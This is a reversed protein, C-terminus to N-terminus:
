FRRPRGPSAKQATAYRGPQIGRIGGKVKGVHGFSGADLGGGHAGERGDVPKEGEGVLLGEEVGGADDDVELFRGSNVEGGVAFEVAVVEIMGVGVPHDLVEDLPDAANLGPDRPLVAVFEHGLLAHLETALGGADDGAGKVLTGEVEGFGAGTRGGDGGLRDLKGEGAGVHEGAGEEVLMVAVKFGKEEGEGVDKGSLDGIEVASADLDVFGVEGAGRFVAGEGGLGDVADEPIDLDFAREVEAEAVVAALADLGAGPGLEDVEEVSELDIVEDEFAGVPGGFVEFGELVDVGTDGEADADYVDLDVGDFGGVEDGLPDLGGLFSETGPAHSPGM